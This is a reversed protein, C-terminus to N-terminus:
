YRNSVEEVVVSQLNNKAFIPILSEELKASINRTLSSESRTARRHAQTLSSLEDQISISGINIPEPEGIPKAYLTWILGDTGIGVLYRQNRNKAYKVFTDDILYGEIQRSASADEIERGLRKSEVICVTGAPPDDVQFDPEKREDKTLDVPRWRVENFGLANLVPVILYQETFFEPTQGVVGGKFTEGDLIRELVGSDTTRTDFRYVFEILRHTVNHARAGDATPLEQQNSM